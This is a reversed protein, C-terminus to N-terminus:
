GDLGLEKIDVFRGEVFSKNAALGVALAKTGDGESAAQKSADGEEVKEGPRPGFLKNLM